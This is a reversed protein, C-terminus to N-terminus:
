QRAYFEGLFWFGDEVSALIAALDAIAPARSVRQGFQAVFVYFDDLDVVGASSGEDDLDFGRNFDTVPQNIRRCVPFFRGSGGPRQRMDLFLQRHNM